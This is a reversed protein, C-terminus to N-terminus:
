FGTRQPYSEKSPTDALRLAAVEVCYSMIIWVYM